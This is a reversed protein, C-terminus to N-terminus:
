DTGAENGRETAEEIQWEDREKPRTVNKILCRAASPLLVSSDVRYPSITTTLGFSYNVGSLEVSGSIYRCLLSYVYM